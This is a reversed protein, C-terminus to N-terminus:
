ALSKRLGEAEVRREEAERYRWRVVPILVGVVLTMVTGGLVPGYWIGYPQGVALAYIGFTLQAIGAVVLGYMLGLIWRRGIGRPALTGGLAGVIGCLTGGGGGAISGYWAGFQNLDFWPEAM